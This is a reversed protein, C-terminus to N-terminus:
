PQVATITRYRSATAEGPVTWSLRITVQSGNVTV